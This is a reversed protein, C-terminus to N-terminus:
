YTLKYLLFTINHSFMNLCAIIYNVDINFENFDLVMGLTNYGYISLSYHLNTKKCQFVHKFVNQRYKHRVLLLIILEVHLFALEKVLDGFQIRILPLSLMYIKYPIAYFKKSMVFFHGGNYLFSLRWIMHPMHYAYPLNLSKSMEPAEFPFVWIISRIEGRYSM